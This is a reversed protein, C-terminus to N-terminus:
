GGHRGGCGTLGHWFGSALAYFRAYRKDAIFVQITQHILESTIEKIAFAKPVERRRLLLFANRLRYYSRVPADVWVKLPGFRICMTGISHLMTVTPDVYIPVGHARARLCWECDVYDLFLLEDFLGVLAFTKTTIASGSSIRIDVQYPEDRGNALVKHPYGWKNLVYTPCEFGQRTDFYIPGIVSPKSIDLRAVLREVLNQDILSDQDFFVVVDAGEALARKVAANQASAIGTNGGMDIVICDMPSLLAGGPTNDSIVVKVDGSNLIAVLRVLAGMEPYYAVIVAYIKLIKSMYEIVSKGLKKALVGLYCISRRVFGAKNRDSVDFPSPCHQLKRKSQLMM